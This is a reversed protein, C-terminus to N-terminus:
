DSCGDRKQHHAESAHSKFITMSNNARAAKGRLLPCSQLTGRAKVRADTVVATHLLMQYSNLRRKAQEARTRGKARTGDCNYRKDAVVVVSHIHM